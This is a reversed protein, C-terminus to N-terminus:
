GRLGRLDDPVILGKLGNANPPVVLDSMAESADILLQGWAALEKRDDAVATLTGPGSRLTVVAITKGDSARPGTACTLTAPYTALAHPNTPDCIPYNPPVDEYETM